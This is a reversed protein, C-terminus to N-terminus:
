GVSLATMQCCCLGTLLIVFRRRRSMRLLKCCSCCCLCCCCENSAEIEHRWVAELCLFRRLDCFLWRPHDCRTLVIPVILSCVVCCWWVLWPVTAEWVGLPQKIPGEKGYDRWAADFCFRPLCGPCTKLPHFLCDVILVQKVRIQRWHSVYSVFPNLVVLFCCVVVLCDLVFLLGTELFCSLLGFFQQFL